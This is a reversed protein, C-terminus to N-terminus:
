ENIIARYMQMCASTHGIYLLKLSIVDESKQNLSNICCVIKISNIVLVKNQFSYTILPHQLNGAFTDNYVLFLRSFLRHM